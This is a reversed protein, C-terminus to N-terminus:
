DAYMNYKGHKSAFCGVCLMVVPGSVSASRGLRAVRRAFKPLPSGLGFGHLQAAGCYVLQKTSNELNARDQCPVIDDVCQM